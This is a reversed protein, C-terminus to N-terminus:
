VPAPFTQFVHFLCSRDSPTARNETAIIQMITESQFFSHPYSILLPETTIIFTASSNDVNFKCRSETTYIADVRQGIEQKSPSSLTQPWITQIDSASTPALSVLPPCSQNAM